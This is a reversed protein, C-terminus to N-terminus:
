KIRKEVLRILASRLGELTYTYPDLKAVEEAMEKDGLSEDLWISFDNMGRGLPLRSEFVHFYLSGPTIKRLAEVFERLDHAVYPAPLIVSVAKMFYFCRGEAAERPHAERSLYEEINSVLTTRLAGMTPFSFTDIAALREGLVEEGLADGVWVAFDNSPEASLQHYEELYRHTHYYIVSEPVKKLIDAMERLNHAKLGTLETLHTRSNFRFPSAAQKLPKGYNVVTHQVLHSNPILITKDDLTEIRTNRWSMDIVYGEEGTELKIYDGPRIHEAASLQFGAYFNPVADRFALGAALIGVGLLLILPTTPVGWLDLVILFAVTIVVIRAINKLLVMTPHPMKTRLGFYSVLRTLISILSVVISIVFLTWLSNAAPGKWEPPVM